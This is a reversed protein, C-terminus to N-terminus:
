TAAAAGAKGHSPAALSAMEAAMAQAEEPAIRAPFDEPRLMRYGLAGAVSWDIRANVRAVTERSLRAKWREERYYQRLTALAAEGKKTNADKANLDDPPCLGLARFTAQAVAGPSQIFDELRVIEARLGADRAADRYTLTAQAKEAWLVLPSALVAPMGERAECMWPRAAFAELTAANPGKLHYPRRALGILWSYPDRMMLITRVGADIMGASLVPRAHKWPDDGAHRTAIDDRMAHLYMRKWHGKLATEVAAQVAGDYAPMEGRAGIRHAVGPVQRLLSIMARTGTNREGFVKVIAPDGM